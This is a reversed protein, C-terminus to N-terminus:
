MDKENSIDGKYTNLKDLEKKMELVIFFQTASILIFITIYKLIKIALKNKRDPTSSVCCAFASVIFIISGIILPMGFTFWMYLGFLVFKIGVLNFTWQYPMTFFKQIIVLM